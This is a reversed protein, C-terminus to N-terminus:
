SKETDGDKASSDMFYINFSNSSASISYASCATGLLVSYAYPM